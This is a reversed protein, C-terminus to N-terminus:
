TRSFGSWTSGCLAPINDPSQFDKIFFCYNMAPNKKGAGVSRGCAISLHQSGAFQWHRFDWQMAPTVFVAQPIEQRTDFAIDHLRVSNITAGLAKIYAEKLTWQNFFRARMTADDGASAIWEREAPHFYREAIDAISNNRDHCDIDIGLMQVNGVACGIWDSGHSLNFAPADALQPKGEESYQWVLTMPDRGTYHALCSRLLARGALWEVRRKASLMGQARAQEDMTTLALLEPSLSAPRSTLWVHIASDQLVPVHLEPMPLMRSYSVPLASALGAM